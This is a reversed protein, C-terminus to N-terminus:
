NKDKPKRNILSGQDGNKKKTSKSSRKGSSKSKQKKVEAKQGSGEAKSKGELPEYKSKLADVLKGYGNRMTEFRGVIDKFYAVRDADENHVPTLWTEMTKFQEELVSVLMNTDKESRLSMEKDEHEALEKGQTKVADIVSRAPLVAVM